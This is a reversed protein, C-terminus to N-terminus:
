LTYQKYFEIQEKIAEITEPLREAIQQQMAEDKEVRLTFPIMDPHWSIFDWAGFETIFMAAQVQWKYENPMVGKALYKLHTKALPCKIELGINDIIGDPSFGIWDEFENEPYIFGVEEVEVEFHDEYAARALPELDNGREMADSTFSAPKDNTIIEAAVDLVLNKYTETSKGSMMEKFRTGTIKGLRVEHWAESGQEINVKIM